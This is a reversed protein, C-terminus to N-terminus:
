APKVFYRKSVKTHIELEKSVPHSDLKKRVTGVALEKTNCDKSLHALFVHKTRKADSMEYLYEATQHNSLHGSDGVIRNKVFSPRDSNAQLNHDYNAEIFYVDSNCHFRKMNETLHGLDTMFSMRHGHAEFVFGIHEGTDDYDKGKGLHPLKCYYVSLDQVQEENSGNLEKIRDQYLELKPFKKLLVRKTAARTYVDATTNKLFVVLGQTHDGHAHTIYVRDIDHVSVDFSELGERVRKYSIGIDVLIKVKNTEVITCNGSSGSAIPIYSFISKV